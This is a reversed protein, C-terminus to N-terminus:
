CGIPFLTCECNIVYIICLFRQIRILRGRAIVLTFALLQETCLPPSAAASLQCRTWRQSAPKVMSEVKLRYVYSHSITHSRTHMQMQYAGTCVYLTNYCTCIYIYTSSSFRSCAFVRSSLLLFSLMFSQPIYHGCTQHINATYYIDYTMYTRKDTTPPSPYTTVAHRICIQQIYTM